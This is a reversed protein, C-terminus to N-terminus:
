EGEACPSRRLSGLREVKIMDGEIVVDPDKLLEKRVEPPPNIFLGLMGLYVSPKDPNYDGLQRPQGSKAKAEALEGVGIRDLIDISAKVSANLNQTQSSAHLLNGIVPDAAGALRLKAKEKVATVSGGHRACIEMGYTRARGCRLGTRTSHAACHYPQAQTEALAIEDATARRGLAKWDERTKARKVLERLEALSAHVEPPFIRTLAKRGKQM